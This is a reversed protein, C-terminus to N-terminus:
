LHEAHCLGLADDRSRIWATLDEPALLDCATMWQGDYYVPECGEEEHRQMVDGSPQMYGAEAADDYSYPQQGQARLHDRYNECISCKM